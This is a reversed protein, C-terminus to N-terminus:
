LPRFTRETRLWQPPPYNMGTQQLSPQRVKTLRGETLLKQYAPLWGPLTNGQQEWHVYAAESCWEPLNRMAVQHPGNNRFHKMAEASKWITATWFTLNKDMLEKGALFGDATKIAKLSAENAMFFRPLNIVSRVRLRTVSVFYM